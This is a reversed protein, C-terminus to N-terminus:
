ERPSDNSACSPAAAIATAGSLATTVMGSACKRKVARAFFGIENEGALVAALHEDGVIEAVLFM